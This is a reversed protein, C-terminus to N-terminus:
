KMAAELIEQAQRLHREIIGHAIPRRSQAIFLRMSDAEERSLIVDGKRLEIVEINTASPLEHPKESIFDCPDGYPTAIDLWWRRREPKSM